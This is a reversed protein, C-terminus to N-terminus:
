TFLDGITRLIDSYFTGSIERFLAFPADPDGFFPRLTWALQTGVFGYLMIWIYVLRMSAPRRDATARGPAAVAFGAAPVPAPVSPLAPIVTATASGNAPVEAAPAGVLALERQPEAVPVGDLLRNSEHHTNLAAMGTTLFRLGVLATLALICVNLLKFFDYNQATILFFLSIPAFALTLGAIVTISVMILTVAQTISLRAGFVLNFLYLTPLCIALTALFLLPLKVMSSLAQQPGNSAGLVLGFIAFSIVSTTLTQLTLNRLNRGESIQRWIGDRDRLIREIVLPNPGPSNSM